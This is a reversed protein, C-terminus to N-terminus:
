RKWLVQNAFSESHMGVLKGLLATAERKGGYGNEGGPGVCSPCGDECECAAVLEYARELLEDHLEYLRESFGIGAPVRDYIVIAPKGDGLPSRPDSHVGIDRADCMLSFPALHALAYGLGALGSRIRVALEARRHCNSCLTILNDLHNAQEASAFARFPTKHHVDHARGNEPAGCNGCKFGDRARVQDRRRAWDPGYDNSDNSWLGQVRLADTTERNLAIWYGTTHLETPPLSLIGGGLNEHTFWRVKKFGIVQTTVAIEGHAKVAGRAGSEGLRDILQVTTESGPETYYDADSLRMRAIGQELDLEDVIYSQAEHLYIAQPHAMWYASERDVEGITEGDVQLVVKEASASRLSVRDAPYQDAMWYYKGGSEHLVGSEQLFRLYEAVQEPEVQGFKASHGAQFPLEFAACRLHQLLILLNDANVLAQEPSRGFMYDPHRALFQDLPDSSAVLVALSADSGRGARGAQQWTSAVTGPYGVLVAAGMGGIDIGLELANTAVVARVSGERLGREIERRQAPLYGGRYGRIREQSHSLPVEDRFDVPTTLAGGTEKNYSGRESSSRLYRLIQEVTQRARAFVITQVNRQVLEGTLRVSEQLASRRIGLARNVIPPNYILFHKVGKAAGDNDVLVVPEEILREALEVPNGITASTLIFQPFAGYFQAVRKLRRIVNAVHSGFVGRYAHMEDIVIFRLHALFEAWLTHHPLVGTHLMDPNSVVIHAKARVSPRAGTPTDGDYSAVPLAVLANLNSVQDQALAKTPFLYLAREQPDKLLCDLVPLNYCLTKGSATGTVIVLHHGARAQEWATAQHTYLSQVGALRLSEILAPDLENPLPVFQPPRAPITRWETICAKITPTTRWDALISDLSAM